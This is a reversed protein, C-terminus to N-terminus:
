LWGELKKINYNKLNKEVNAPDNRWKLPTTGVVKSFNRNFTTVTSFGTKVAISLVSDDTTRLFSCATHIRATNVYDLPSVSMISHFLRRFHTESMHCMDALESIRISEAYNESIYELAPVIQVSSKLQHHIETSSDMNDQLRGVEIFLAFILARVSLHYHHKHFRMEDMIQLVLNAMVPSQERNLIYAKTSIPSIVSNVFWMTNENFYKMFEEVDVFLYEWKGLRGACDTSHPVNQPILSVTGPSFPVVKDEMFLDGTGWYCYGIELHNHFHLVDDCAYKRIWGEGLLALVPLDQPLEYHRYEYTKKKKKAMNVGKKLM